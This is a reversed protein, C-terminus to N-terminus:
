LYVVNSEKGSYRQAKMGGRGCAVSDFHPYHQPYYRFARIESEGVPTAAQDEQRPDKNIRSLVELSIDGTPLSTRRRCRSLHKTM